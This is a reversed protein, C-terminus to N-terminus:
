AARVGHLFDTVVARLHSSVENMRASATQVEKADGSTREAASVVSVVRDSAVRSGSSASNIGASIDRTAQNQQAMVSAIGLASSKLADFRKLIDDIGSVAASTERQIEAIQKAIDSTAAATQNALEKVEHAVVAFGRGAAGAREAEITANLALLNTQAAIKAIMTAVTEISQAASSLGTIRTSASAAASAAEDTARQSSDIRSSIEAISGQLESVATAVDEVAENAQLSSSQADATNRNTIDVADTLSRAVTALLSAMRDVEALADEARSRFGEIAEELRRARQVESAQSERSAEVLRVREKEKQRLIELGRAIDGIEDRRATEEITLDADGDSVRRLKDVIARIPQKLSRTIQWCLITTLLVIALGIGGTIALGRLAAHEAAESAAVLDTVVREELAKLLEIRATSAEFWERGTVSAVPTGFASGRAVTRMAEVREIVPGSLTRDILASQEATAKRHAVELYGDQLAGLRIFREYIPQAFAGSGFGTAGMARELGAAEKANIITFFVTAQRITEADEVLESPITSLDLLQRIMGTYFGAMESVPVAIDLVKNRWAALHSLTRDLADIEAVREAGARMQPLLARVRALAADTDRQQQNLANAFTAGRSGIYGASLGREKQLEHALGSFLPTRAIRIEAEEAQRWRQYDQVLGNATIAVVGLVSIAALIM